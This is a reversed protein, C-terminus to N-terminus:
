RHTLDTTAAHVPAISDLVKRIEPAKMFYKWCLGSRYNEIMPAIPGVNNALYDHALWNQSLNLGDYFGFPGWLQKGFDKYLKLVFARSEEPLYPMSSLAATPNITGNDRRGPAFARYGNPGYGATLGWLSGYGKFENQKSEAYLVQVRCLDHFHEFYTKGHYFIQRPDLGLYSYHTWFLPFGIDHGLELPVGFVTRETGYNTSQWGQWYCEPQVAHTPSALALVYVIHCENFGSIAHNKLWGYEPSWHWMLAARGDVKQAFWDWEVSRWLGDALKRIETEEANTGSFYERLLLAGQMLFGTEVLDAGNDYQSFPIVKGTTGDLWHPFAGHFRDAKDSLFRLIKLARAAGQERTVFGREVGVVLNFIGWGTSGAACLDPNRRTGVRALGSVPHGYGYFYRFSSEQVETLLREPDLPLPSAKLTESWASASAPQGNTALRVSRVRYYYDGGPQGIFDCYYGLDPSLSSVTEFGSDRSLGRQIEYTGPELAERWSLDVRLQRSLVRFDKLVELVQVHNSDAAGFALSAWTM